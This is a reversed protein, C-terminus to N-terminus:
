IALMMILISNILINHNISVTNMSSIYKVDLSQKILNSFGFNSYKNFSYPNISEKSKFLLNNMTAKAKFCQKLTNNNRIAFTKM